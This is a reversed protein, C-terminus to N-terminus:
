HRAPVADVGEVVPLQGAHGDEVAESRDRVGCPLQGGLDVLHEGDGAGVLHVQDPVALAAHHRAVVQLEEAAGGLDVGEDADGGVVVAGGQVAQGLQQRVEGAGGLP